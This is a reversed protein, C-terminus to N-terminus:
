PGHRGRRSGAGRLHGTARHRSRRRRAPGRRGAPGRRQARTAQEDERLPARVVRMEALGCTADDAVRRLVDDAHEVRLAIRYRVFAERENARDGVRHLELRRDCQDADRRLAAAKRRRPTRQELVADARPEVHLVAQVLEEGGVLLQAGERALVADLEAVEALRRGAEVDRRALVECVARRRDQHDAGVTCDPLHRDRELQVALRLRAPDAALEDRGTLGADRDRAPPDGDVGDDGVEDGTGGLLEHELTDPAPALDQEDFALSRQEM